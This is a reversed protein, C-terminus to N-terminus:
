SALIQRIRASKEHDKLKSYLKEATKLHKVSRERDELHSHFLQGLLYHADAFDPRIRVTELLAEGASEHQHADLYALGLSFRDQLSDPALAVSKELVNVADDARGSLRLATGWYYFVHHNKPVRQATGTLLRIAEEFENQRIYAAGLAVHAHIFDPKLRIAQKFAGVASSIKGLGLDELCGYAVGMNYYADLFNSQYAIAMKYADVAWQYLGLKQLRLGEKLWDEAAKDNEEIENKPTNLQRALTARQLDGQQAFHLEAQELYKGARKANRLKKLHLVGLEYYAEAFDSRTRVANKFAVRATANLGYELCAHGLMYYSQALCRLKEGEEKEGLGDPDQYRGLSDSAFNLWHDAINFDQVRAVVEKMAGFAKAEKGLLHYATALDYYIQPVDSKIKLAKRYYDVEMKYKGMSGCVYGLLHYVPYAEPEEDLIGSFVGLAGLYNGRVCLMVGQSFQGRDRWEYPFLELLTDVLKEVARDSTTKFKEMKEVLEPFKRRLEEGLTALSDDGTSFVLDRKKSRSKM